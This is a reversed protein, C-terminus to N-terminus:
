TLSAQKTKIASIIAELAKHDKKKTLVQRAKEIFEEIERV